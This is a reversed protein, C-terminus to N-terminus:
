DCSINRLLKREKRGIDVRIANAIRLLEEFFGVSQLRGIANAVAELDRFTNFEQGRLAVNSKETVQFPHTYISGCYQQKQNRTPSDIICHLAHCM